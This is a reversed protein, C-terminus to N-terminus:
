CKQSQSLIPNFRSGCTRACKILRPNERHVLPNSWSKELDERFWPHQLIDELSSKRLENFQREYRQLIKQSIDERSKHKEHWLYLDGGIFCCPWLYGRCDIYLRQFKKKNICNIQVSQLYNEFSEHEALIQKLDMTTAQNQYQPQSPQELWYEVEESQLRRSSIRAGQEFRGGERLVPFRRETEGSFPSSFRSTKRIRFEAFGLSDALKKVDEIQHENHKFVLFDWRTQAGAQIAAEMNQLIKAWQSGKRYFPNTDELGDVSFVLRDGGGKFYQALERWWDPKRASGNTHFWLEGVGNKKFYEVAPLTSESM